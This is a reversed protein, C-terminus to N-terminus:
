WHHRSEVVQGIIQVPLNRINETSYFHPEYVDSNFGYLMIGGDVKKVQKCTAEDGNVLVIAISGSDVDSMKKVIVIDGEVLKPEMSRGKIKLAFYEGQRAMVEPIEEYDEINEIAEMPIGAVVSGLVPIRVGKTSADKKITEPNKISSIGLIYDASVNFFSAIKKVNRNPRSDGAEYKNITTRDLDLADALAAQSLGKSERLEKIRQASKENGAKM